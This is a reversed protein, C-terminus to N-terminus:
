CCDQVQLKLGIEILNEWNAEKSNKVRVVLTQIVRGAGRRQLVRIDAFHRAIKSSTFIFGPYSLALM